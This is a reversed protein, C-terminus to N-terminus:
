GKKDGTQNLLRERIDILDKLFQEKHPNWGTKTEVTQLLRNLKGMLDKYREEWHEAETRDFEEDKDINVYTRRGCTLCDVHVRFFSPMESFDGDSVFEIKRKRM